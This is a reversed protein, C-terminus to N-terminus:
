SERILDKASTSFNIAAKSSAGIEVISAKREPITEGCKSMTAICGLRSCIASSLVGKSCCSDNCVAHRIRESYSARSAPIVTPSDSNM